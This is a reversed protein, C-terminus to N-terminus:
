KLLQNVQLCCPFWCSQCALPRHLHIVMNKFNDFIKMDFPRIPGCCNRVLCGSSEKAEYVKQGMSNKISFKNKTEFGTM